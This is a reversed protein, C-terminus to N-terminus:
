SIEVQKKAKKLENKVQKLKTRIEVQKNLKNRSM